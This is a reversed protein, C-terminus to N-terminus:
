AAIGVAEGESRWLERYVALEEATLPNEGHLASMSTDWPRLGDTRPTLLVGISTAAAPDSVRASFEHHRLELWAGFARQLERDFRSCVGFGLQTTGNGGWIRRLHWLVEPEKIGAVNDLGDRLYRGVFGRQLVPLSDLEGLSRVRAVESMADLEISAIDELIQRFMRHDDADVTGAPAMPLLPESVEQIGRIQFEAKLPTPEVALDAAAFEYYRKPESGLPCSDGVIRKLYRGVAHTSKLQDFLFEWDRRLLVAAAGGVEPVFENPLEDHDIVIATLWDYDNGDVEVTRGRMNRMSAPELCLQRVTGRGQKAAKRIASNLWAFEKKDRGSPATRSKVQVVVGIEGVLLLGDGLERVGSGTQRVSPQFVFDHLGWAAAASHAAAEAEKGQSQLLRLPMAPPINRVAVGSDTEIIIQTHGPPADGVLPSIRRVRGECCKKYKHGSGCPCPDNRGIKAM